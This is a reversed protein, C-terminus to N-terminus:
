DNFVKMQIGPVAKILLLITLKSVAKETNSSLKLSSYWIMMGRGGKAGSCVKGVGIFLKSLDMGAKM